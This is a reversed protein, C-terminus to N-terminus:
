GRDELSPLIKISCVIFYLVNLYIIIKNNYLKNNFLVLTLYIYNM